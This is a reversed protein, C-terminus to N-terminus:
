LKLARLRLANSIVSVSSLSMAAAAKSLWKNYTTLSKIGSCREGTPTVSRLYRILKLALGDTALSM